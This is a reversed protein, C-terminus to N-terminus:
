RGIGYRDFAARNLLGFGTFILGVFICLLYIGAPPPPGEDIFVFNAAHPYHLTDLDDDSIQHLMGSIGSQVVGTVEVPGVRACAEATKELGCRMDVRESKLILSTPPRESEPEAALRAESYLPYLIQRIQKNADLTREMFYRGNGQAGEVTIYRASGVGHAEIEEMTFRRPVDNIRLGDAGYLIACAGGVLCM